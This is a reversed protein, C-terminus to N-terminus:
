STNRLIPYYVNRRIWARLKWLRVRKRPSSALRKERDAAILSDGADPPHRIAPPDCIWIEDLTGVRLRRDWGDAVDRILPEAALIRECAKRSIFYGCTRQIANESCLVKFFRPAGGGLSARRSLAMERDEFGERGGLHLILACRELRESNEQIWKMTEAFSSSLLADDELVVAGRTGKCLERYIARHSEACAIETASLTNGSLASVGKKDVLAILDEPPTVTGDMGDFFRFSMEM